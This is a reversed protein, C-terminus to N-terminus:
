EDEPNILFSRLEESLDYEYIPLLLENLIKDKRPSENDLPLMDNLMKDKQPFESAPLLFQKRTGRRKRVFYYKAGLETKSSYFHEESTFAVYLQGTDHFIFRLCYENGNLVDMGKIMEITIEFDGKEITEIEKCHGLYSITGVLLNYGIFPSFFLLLTKFNFGIHSMIFCLPLILALNFLEAFVLQSIDMSRATRKTRLLYEKTLARKETETKKWPWVGKAEQNRRFEKELAIEEIETKKRPTISKM